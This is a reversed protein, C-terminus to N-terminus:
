PRDSLGIASLFLRLIHEEAQEFSVEHNRIMPALYANLAAGMRAIAITDTVPAIVDQEALADLYRRTRQVPRNQIDTWIERVEPDALSEHQLVTMLELNDLWVRLTATVTTTLVEDINDLRFGDTSQARALSARLDQALAVLAERKSAFYVYFTARSVGASSTIDTVATAGFGQHEFVHRASRLLEARRESNLRDVNVRAAWGTTM